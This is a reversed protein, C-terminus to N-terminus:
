SQGSKWLTAQHTLESASGVDLKTKINERHTEVTKVSLSLREAINRTSMGRGILEFIELERDSLSELGTARERSPSIGRRMLREAVEHCLAIEGRAVKQLAALLEEGPRSKNIYGLAGARLAREAFVADDHMSVFLIRLEKNISLLQKALELGSGSPLSIDVLALDPRADRAATLAADCDDAEGCVEFEDEASIMERLGRRVLAHDDVILVRTRAM